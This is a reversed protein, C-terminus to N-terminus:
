RIEVEDGLFHLVSVSGQRAEPQFVATKLVGCGTQVRSVSTKAMNLQARLIARGDTPLAATDLGDPGYQQLRVWIIQSNEDRM